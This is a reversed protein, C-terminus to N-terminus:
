FRGVAAVALTKEAAMLQADSAGPLVIDIRIVTPGKQVSLSMRTGSNNPLYDKQYYASDGVGSAATIEFVGPVSARTPTFEVPNIVEIEVFKVMDALAHGGFSCVNESPDVAPAGPNVPV